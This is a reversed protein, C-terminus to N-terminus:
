ESPFQNEVTRYNRPPEWLEIKNGEPDFVWAFKGYEFEEVKKAVKVREKRLQALTKQLNKVRYNIM